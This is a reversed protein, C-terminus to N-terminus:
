CPDSVPPLAFVGGGMPVYADVNTRADILYPGNARFAREYAARIQEPHEVVEASIGMAVAVAALDLRYEDQNGEYRFESFLTKELGYRMEQPRKVAGYAFDNLVVYVVPLRYEAATILAHIVMTLGGDGAWCVVKSDPHALQAGLAGCPGFGMAAGGMTSIVTRPKFAPYQQAIWKHANGVDGIIIDNEDMLPILEALLRGPNLPVSDSVKDAQTREDWSRQEANLSDLWDSTRPRLQQATVLETMAAITNRADGVVGVEVPYFKAIEDYDIDIQILKTDPISYTKGQIWSSAGVESLRTGVALLVDAETSVRNAVYSGVWGNIGFSLPHNEPVSGKGPVTTVIPAQLAEALKRIEDGAESLTAGGGAVIAPREAAMLLEVARKLAAKDGVPRDHVRYTQPRPIECDAWEVFADQTIDIHVPGPRGTIATKYARAMIEPLREPRDVHWTRKVAHEFMQSTAADQKRSLEQYAGRGQNRSWVQGTIVIIASSDLYANLVGTLLNASGVSNHGYIAMPKGTTRFYADAMFAATEENRVLIPKIEDQRERIAEVLDLVTHGPIGAIYEIGQAVLSAVVIQAGRLKAM